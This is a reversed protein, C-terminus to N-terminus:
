ALVNTRYMAKAVAIGVSVLLDRFIDEMAVMIVVAVMIEMAVAVAVVETIEEAVAQRHGLINWRFQLSRAVLIRAAQHKDRERPSRILRV